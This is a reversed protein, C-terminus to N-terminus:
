CCGAAAAQARPADRAAARARGPRARAGRQVVRPRVRRPRVSAHRRAGAAAGRRRDRAGARGRGRRDRRGGPRRGGRAAGGPVRGAGCGLDLVREGAKAEALLLASRGEWEWPEPEDPADAWFSEYFGRVRVISCAHGIAAQRTGIEAGQQSRRERRARGRLRERLVEIGARSAGRGPAVTTSRPQPRPSDTSANRAASGDHAPDAHFDAVALVPRAVVDLQADEVAHRQRQLVRADVDDEGLLHELVDLARVLQDRVDRAHQARAAHERARGRVELGVM